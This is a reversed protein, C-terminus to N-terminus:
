LCFTAYDSFKIAIEVINLVDQFAFVVIEELFVDGNEDFFFAM